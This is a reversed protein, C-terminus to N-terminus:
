NSEKWEAIERIIEDIIVPSKADYWKIRPDAKFWTMQRKALNRTKQKIAEVTDALEQKGRLHDIVQRYGLAQAATSKESLGVAMLERVEDILGSTIMKDVREDIRKYLAVRDLSIGFVAAEYISEFRKWEDPPKLTGARELARVLRRRNRNDIAVAAGPDVELLLRYLEETAMTQYHQRKDGPRSDVEFRLDDIAARVYLGSGGVLIPLRKREIIDAIALRAVAQFRAVSFDQDPGTIDLLHHRIGCMAPESLKATGIDMGRYVQFADCSVIEADIRGAVAVALESKGVATPGVIVVIRNKKAPTSAM